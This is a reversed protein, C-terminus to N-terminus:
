RLKGARCPVPSAPDSLDAEVIKTQCKGMPLPPITSLLFDWWAATPMGSSRGLPHSRAPAPCPSSLLSTEPFRTAESPQASAPSGFPISSVPSVRPSKSHWLGGLVVPSKWPIKSQDGQSSAFVVLDAPACLSSPSAAALSPLPPPCPSPPPQLPPSNTVPSGPLRQLGTHSASPELPAPSLVLSQPQHTIGGAVCASPLSFPFRLAPNNEDSGKGLKGCGPGPKTGAADKGVSCVEPQTCLESCNPDTQLSQPEAQINEIM